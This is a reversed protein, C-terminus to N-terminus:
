KVGSNHDEFIRVSRRKGTRRGSAIFDARQATDEAFETQQFEANLHFYTASSFSAEWAAILSTGAKAASAFPKRSLITASEAHLASRMLVM